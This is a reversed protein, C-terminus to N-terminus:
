AAAVRSQRRWISWEAENSSCAMQSYSNLNSAAPHAPRVKLRLTVRRIAAEVRRTDFREHFSMGRPAKIEAATGAVDFRDFRQQRLGTNAPVLDMDLEKRRDASINSGAVIFV